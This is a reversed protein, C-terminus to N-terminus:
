CKELAVLHITKCEPAGDEKSQIWCDAMGLSIAGVIMVLGGGRLTVRDGVSIRDIPKPLPQANTSEPNEWEIGSHQGFLIKALETAAAKRPDPYLSSESFWVERASSLITSSEEIRKTDGIGVTLGYRFYSPPSIHKTHAFACIETVLFAGNHFVGVVDGIKFKPTIEM